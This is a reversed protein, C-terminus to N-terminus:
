LVVCWTAEYFNSQQVRILHLFRTPTHTGQSVFFRTRGLVVIATTVVHSVSSGLVSIASLHFEVQALKAGSM